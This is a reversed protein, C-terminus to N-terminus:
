LHKEFFDPGAHALFRWNTQLGFSRNFHTFVGMM